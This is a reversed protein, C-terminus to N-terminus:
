RCRRQGVLASDVVHVDIADARNSISMMGATPTLIVDSGNHRHAPVEGRRSHPLRVPGVDPAGAESGVVVTVTPGNPIPPGHVLGEGQRVPEM